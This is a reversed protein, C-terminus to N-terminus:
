QVASIGTNGDGFKSKLEEVIKKFKDEFGIHNRNANGGLVVQTRGDREEVVAWVRRHSFFFVFVLAGILGFGGFYWAIFAGNFPDYKISLVHAFPAKEYDALEWKYGAKPASLMPAGKLAGQGMAYVRVREGNPPTVSLVAAPNNYDGSRTDAKAGNLFFDPLFEEYQIKTGDALETSGMRPIEVSIPEGGNQPVLNLKITRANGVPITQAQFFRYGRYSFPKNMSIDAIMTGYAPDDVKMQTRWDLTNTVDISGSPDILKQQIDTCTMSFPLQVNFKEQRDLDFEIMQIQDTADGPIMRVDADFGTQLAVFHGLFLTLLAVHVIYAGIRNFRGSEGFVVTKKERVVDSFNKKGSEDVGYNSEEFDNVVTKLGNAAFVHRLKEITEDRGSEVVLSDHVAQQKLWATTAILKPNSIYAKWTSPFRDISALIINLSLVLLLFKFYWSYYINFFGLSGYVLKEAPTLSAYYVDFGQVNQQIILMGIMSLVVLICLLTVGFRVSSLFDLFRDGIPKTRPRAAERGGITEEAASM